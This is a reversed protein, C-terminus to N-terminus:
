DAVLRDAVLRVGLGLRGKCLGVVAKASRFGAARHRGGLWGATWGDLWGALWGVLWGVGPGGSGFCVMPQMFGTLCYRRLVRVVSGLM